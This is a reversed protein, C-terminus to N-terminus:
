QGAGIYVHDVWIFDDHSKNANLGGWTFELDIADITTVTDLTFNHDGRLIGDAWWKQRWTNGGVREILWEIKVWKGFMDVFSNDVNSDAIGDGPNYSKLVNCGRWQLIIHQSTGNFWVIFLKNSGSPHCQWNPAYMVYAGFHVATKGDAVRTRMGGPGVGGGLGEEFFNEYASTPSLQGEDAKDVIRMVDTPEKSGGTRSWVSSQETWVASSFSQDELPVFGPPENTWVPNCQVPPSNQAQVRVGAHATKGGGTAAIRACGQTQGTVLGNDGVSAVAPDTSSWTVSVGSLPNGDADRVTATLQGTEGVNLYLVTPSLTIVTAPAPTTDTPTTDSAAAGEVFPVYM